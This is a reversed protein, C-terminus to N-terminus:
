GRFDQPIEMLLNETFAKKVISLGPEKKSKM